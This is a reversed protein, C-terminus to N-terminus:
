VSLAHKSTWVAHDIRSRHLSASSLVPTMTGAPVGCAGNSSIDAKEEESMGKSRVIDCHEQPFIFLAPAETLSHLPAGSFAVGFFPLVVVVVFFDVFVCCSFPIIFISKGFHRYHARM